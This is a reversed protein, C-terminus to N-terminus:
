AARAEPEFTGAVAEFLDCHDAYDARGVTCTLTYGRGTILWAWQECVLDDEGRRYGFRRYATTRGGLDYEDEEDLEFCTRRGAVSALERERWANLSGAVSSVDLRILPVVGSRGAAPARASVLVGRDPDTSHRWGVPLAIAPPTPGPTTM